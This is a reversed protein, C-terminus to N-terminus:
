LARERDARMVALVVKAIATKNRLIAYEDGYVQAAAEVAVANARIWANGFERAGADMTADFDEFMQIHDMM